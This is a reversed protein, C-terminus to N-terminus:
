CLDTDSGRGPESTGILAAVDTDGLCGSFHLLAHQSVDLVKVYALASVCLRRTGVAPPSLRLGLFASKQQKQRM